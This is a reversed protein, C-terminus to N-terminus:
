AGPRLKSEQMKMYGGYAIVLLLILGIWAGYKVHNAVVLLFKILGFLVTGVTLGAMVTSMPITIPLSGGTAMTVQGAILLIAFFGMLVGAFAGDGNWAIRNSGCVDGICDRQWALFTDIVLLVSGGILIRDATSLRSMEFPQRQAM